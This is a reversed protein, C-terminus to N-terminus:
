RSYYEVIMSEEVPLTIEERTPLDKMTVSFDAGSPELWKPVERKKVGEQAIMVKNMQRSVEKVQVVDGPYLQQGPLNVRKGNVLFHNHAVLHKAERRSSAFGALYVINDLRTELSQLLNTGTVGKRRDADAFYKQFQREFIGYYRKAKQKERLQLAYESFKLRSQGHQGPPYPRREFACKDTFCRDGKLFLKQNERRCLKCVSDCVRSM